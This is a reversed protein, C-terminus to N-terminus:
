LKGEKKLKKTLNVIRQAQSYSAKPLRFLVWRIATSDPISKKIQDEKKNKKKKDDDVGSELVRPPRDKQELSQGTIVQGAGMGAQPGPPPNIGTATGMGLAKEIGELRDHLHKIAPIDLFDESDEVIQLSKALVHMKAKANVPCQTIAVNRVKAQAIIRSGSKNFGARKLVRGEVSLGLRRNTKQLAKGLSWLKDAPEYGELLYGEVWHGAAPSTEGSPLKEGKQFMKHGDPYGVVNTTEKVHEDKFWGDQVFESFDLGRALLVENQKDDTEISAIGGIRRQEGKPADAKEFFTVPIEFNFPLAHEM